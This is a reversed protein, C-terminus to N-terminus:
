AGVVKTLHQFRQFTYTFTRFTNQCFGASVYTLTVHQLFLSYRLQRLLIKDLMRNESKELLFYMAWLSQLRTGFSNLGM